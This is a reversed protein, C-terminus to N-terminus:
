GSGPGRGEKQDSSGRRQSEECMTLVGTYRRGRNMTVTMAMAMTM